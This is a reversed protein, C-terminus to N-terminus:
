YNEFESWENFATQARRFIVDISSKTNLKNNIFRENGEYALALQNRLDIFRNNVPTASLMLVKTKVGKRIVQNMLRLYRNEKEGADGYIQGGNRFNHSEDIIVLDYNGWNIRDL